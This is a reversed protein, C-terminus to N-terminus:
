LVRAAVEAEEAKISRELWERDGTSFRFEYRHPCFDHLGTEQEETFWILPYLVCGDPRNPYAICRGNELFICRGQVNVLRLSGDVHQAFFGHHGARELRRRDAVTLSMNTDFCCIDCGHRTCPNAM